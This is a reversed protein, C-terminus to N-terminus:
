ERWIGRGAAQAKQEAGLLRGSANAAVRGAGNLVVAEGLDIDGLDCRYQATGAETAQCVVERGRIYHELEHALEGKEGAVGQLHAIGGPFVLTATDAIKPVGRLV